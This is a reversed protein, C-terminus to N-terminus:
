AAPESEAPESEAILAMLRDYQATIDAILVERLLESETTKRHGAMFRLAHKEHATVAVAARESKPEQTQTM